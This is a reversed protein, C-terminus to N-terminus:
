QNKFFLKQAPPAPNPDLELLWMVRCVVDPTGNGDLDRVASVFDNGALCASAPVGPSRKVSSHDALGLVDTVSPDVAPVQGRQSADEVARDNLVTSFVPQPDTQFLGLSSALLGSQLGRIKGLAAPMESLTLDGPATGAVSVGGGSEALSLEGGAPLSLEGGTAEALSLEGGVGTAGGIGSASSPAPGAEGGALLLKLALSVVKASIQVQKTAEITSEDPTLNCALGLAAWMAIIDASVGGGNANLDVIVRHNPANVGATALANIEASGTQLDDVAGGGGKLLGFAKVAM